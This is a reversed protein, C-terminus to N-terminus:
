YEPDRSSPLPCARPSPSSSTDRTGELPYMEPSMSTLGLENIESWLREREEKPIGTEVYNIPRIGAQGKALVNHSMRIQSEKIVSRLRQQEQEPIVPKPRIGAQLSALAHDFNSTIKDIVEQKTKDDIEM